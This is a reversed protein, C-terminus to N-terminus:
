RAERDERILRVIEDIDIKALVNRKEKLRKELDILKRRRVEEELARRILESVNIKLRKAEELLERRVKASVTVYRSM